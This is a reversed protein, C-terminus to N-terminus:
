RVSKWYIVAAERAESASSFAGPPYLALAADDDKGMLVKISESYEAVDEDSWGLTEKAFAIYRRFHDRAESTSDAKSKLSRLRDLPSTM